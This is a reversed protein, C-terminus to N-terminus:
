CRAWGSDCPRSGLCRRSGPWSIGPRGPRAAASGWCAASSSRWRPRWAPWRALTAPLRELVAALAPRGAAMVRRLRRADRPRRFRRVARRAAPRARLVSRIQAEVEPTAGPPILGALPDGALHMLVFTVGVVGFLVAIAFFVRNVIFGIMSPRTGAIGGGDGGPISFRGSAQGEPCSPTSGKPLADAFPPPPRGRGVATRVGEGMRVKGDAGSDVPDHERSTACESAPKVAPRSKATM